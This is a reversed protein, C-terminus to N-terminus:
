GRPALGIPVDPSSPSDATRDGDSQDDHPLTGHPCIGGRGLRVATVGRVATPNPYRAIRSAVESPEDMVSLGFGPSRPSRVM